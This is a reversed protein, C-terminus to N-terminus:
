CQVAAIIEKYIVTLNEAACIKNYGDFDAKVTAGTLVAAFDVGANAATQADVISDGVYLASDAGLRSIAALLGEPVPKEAKVDEAGIIVDILEAANFKDLIQEIRYRYKTTVIGTKFGMERLAKLVAVTDPYLVTNATMVEDAKERFLATFREAEDTRGTLAKFTEKLTLGVTRRIEPIGRPEIGLKELAYNVSLAIGATSDGLTYDFDFIVAKIM